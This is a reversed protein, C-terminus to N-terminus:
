CGIKKLHVIIRALEFWHYFHSYLPRQDYHATIWFFNRKEKPVFQGLHERLAPEFYDKVTVMEDQELFTMLSQASQEAMVDYADPTNADILEPLKRNRHEELKLSSWARALERKLLMVEDEWTLPVLHVNQLYWTYQEKGIGSPGTKLKAETKLWSTLDDTSTIAAQITLVLEPDEKVGLQDLIKRLNESQSRIERIGAIWLDKANGTLNLKAQANLPPVVQLDSLLRNKESPSLPFTYTWIETTMHHTPGEHAPVDSRYNWLSKYFAPDREWPKLVRFNFDYGNMEAWVIHWDM